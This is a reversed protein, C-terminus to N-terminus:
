FSKLVWFLRFDELIPLYMYATSQQLTQHQTNVNSFLQGGFETNSASYWRQLQFLMQTGFDANQHLTGINSFIIPRRLRLKISLVSTPFFNSVLPLTLPQTDVNSSFNAASPAIIFNLVSRSFNWTALLAGAKWIGGFATNGVRLAMKQFNQDGFSTNDARFAPNHICHIASPFIAQAFHRIKFLNGLRLQHYYRSVKEPSPGSGRLM